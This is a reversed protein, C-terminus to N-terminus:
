KHQFMRSQVIEHVLMRLGYNQARARDVIADIERGDAAEPAGGTAYTVLRTILARAIQDKDKLLLQKFEDVNKFQEGGPMEGTTDVDAGRLYRQGPIEKAVRAASTVRYYERWNGIVDFSELAFGPPDIKSHCGACARNERHKALQERITTAGRIDPELPPVNAPPRPPPTGLIRELVWVGRTVPSTTTGNATVKLASAMTLVGGRHSDAPLSVKRFEWLGDVGPIGYLRALRGNLMSFDSAVLNMASLDNQLLETFFLETEKVMSVKLMEDFEPYLHQNPFTADIDRLGLWQGCFNTVFAAAKPSQLMRDVEGHLTEPRSLQAQEALALLEEDPM